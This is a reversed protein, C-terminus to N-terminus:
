VVKELVFYLNFDGRGTNLPKKRVEVIKFGSLRALDTIDQRSYAYRTMFNEGDPSDYITGPRYNRIGREKMEQEYDAVAHRYGGAAHRSASEGRVLPALPIEKLERDKQEDMVQGYGKVMEQFGGKERDPIDFIFKGRPKLVRAAERFLQIQDPLSYDHLINRGLSYIADFSKDQLANNHWDGRFVKASKDDKKISELHEETLDYGTMNYGAQKMDLLLRGTGCGMDLVLGNDKIEKTLNKLLEVEEENMEKNLAYEKFNIKKYLEEISTMAIKDHNPTFFARAYELNGIAALNKNEGKKGEAEIAQNIRARATEASLLDTLAIVVFKINVEFLKIRDKIVALIKESSYIKDRDLLPLIDLYFPNLDGQYNKVFDITLDINTKNDNNARLRRLSWTAFGNLPFPNINDSQNDVIKLIQEVTRVCEDPPKNELFKQYNNMLGFLLGSKREALNEIFQKAAKNYPLDSKQNIIELVQRDPQFSIIEEIFKPDFASTKIEHELEGLNKIFEKVKNNEPQLIYNEAKQKLM